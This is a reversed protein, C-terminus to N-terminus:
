KNISIGHEDAYRTYFQVKTLVEHWGDFCGEHGSYIDDREPIWDPSECWADFRYGYGDHWGENHIILGYKAALRRVKAYASRENKEHTLQHCHKRAVQHNHLSDRSMWIERKKEHVLDELAKLESEKEEIDVQIIAVAEDLVDKPHSTALGIQVPTLRKRERASIM